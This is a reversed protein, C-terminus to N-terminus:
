SRDCPDFTSPLPFLNRLRAAERECDLGPRRALRTAELAFARNFQERDQRLAAKAQVKQERQGNWLSAVVSGATVLIAV